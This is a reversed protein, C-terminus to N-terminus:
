HTWWEWTPASSYTLTITDGPTLSVPTPISPLATGNVAVASVTGGIIYVDVNKHRLNTQATGSAPVSPATDKATRNGYNNAVISITGTGGVAGDIIPTSIAADFMNGVVTGQTSGSDIQVGAGNGYFTNGTIAYKTSGSICEVGKGYNNFSNGVIATSAFGGRLYVGWGGSAISFSCGSITVCPSDGTSATGDYIDIHKAGSSTPGDFSCGVINFHISTSEATEWAIHIGGDGQLFYCGSVLLGGGSLIRIGVGTVAASAYSYTGYSSFLCDIIRGSSRDATSATTDDYTSSTIGSSLYNVFDCSQVKIRSGDDLYICDYQNTFRCNRVVVAIAASSIYIASGSSRNTIFSANSPPVNIAFSLQEVVCYSEEIELMNKTGLSTLDGTIRSGHGENEGYVGSTGAMGRLIVNPADITLTDTIKYSGIPFEVILGTIAAGSDGAAALDIATQIASTDDTTGNGAAGFWKVSVRNGDYIRKFRGTTVATAKVITGINHTATSASDWVFIGEGGDNLASYGQVHLRTGNALTSPDSAILDTVYQISM